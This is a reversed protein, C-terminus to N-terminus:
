QGENQAQWLMPMTTLESMELLLYKKMVCFNCWPKRHM